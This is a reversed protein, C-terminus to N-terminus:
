SNEERLMLEV